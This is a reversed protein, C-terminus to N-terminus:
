AYKASKGRPVVPKSEVHAKRPKYPVEKTMVHFIIVALKRAVACIATCNDKKEALREYFEKLAPDRRIAIWSSQVLCWRLMASGEKTIGMMRLKDSSQRQGPTLGCYCAFSKDAKFRTIDGIQTIIVRATFDGVGPISKLRKADPDNRNIEAIRKDLENILDSHLDLLRIDADLVKRVDEQLEVGELYERRKKAFIDGSEKPVGAYGLLGHVRNKVMTRCRSYQMRGRVLQRASRIEENPIFVKRYSNSALCFSLHKADRRDSKRRDTAINRNARPDCMVYKIPLKSLTKELRTWGYGAEFIAIAEEPLDRLIEPLEVTSEFKGELLENGLGDRISVYSHKTHYDIGVYLM